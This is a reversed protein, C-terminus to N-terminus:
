SWYRITKSERRQQAEVCLTTTSCILLRGLGIMEGTEVCWGFEDSDIRKLAARVELLQETDRARSAIALQQEEEASARDVPDAGAAGVAIEAACARARSELLEELATLRARFFQKQADVMYQSDAMHVIETETLPNAQRRPRKQVATPATHELAM